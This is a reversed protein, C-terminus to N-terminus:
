AFDLRKATSHQLNRDVNWGLRPTILDLSHQHAGVHFGYSAQSIERDNDLLLQPFFLPREVKQYSLSSEQQLNVIFPGWNDICYFTGKTRRSYMIAFVPWRLGQLEHWAGM